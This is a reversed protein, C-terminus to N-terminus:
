RHRETVPRSANATGSGRVLELADAIEVAVAVAVDEPLIGVALNKNQSIFPVEADAAHVIDAHNELPNTQARVRALTLPSPLLSM